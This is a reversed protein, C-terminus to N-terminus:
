HSFDDLFVCFSVSLHLFVLSMYFSPFTLMFIDFLFFLIPFIDFIFPAEQLCRAANKNATLNISDDCLSISSVM